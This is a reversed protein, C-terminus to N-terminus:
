VHARGIKVCEMLARGLGFYEARDYCAPRLGSSVYSGRLKGNEDEGEYKYIFLDQMTIVDGEMGVIESIHTIRRGGDRMRSIQVILDVADSIQQKIANPSLNLGAM